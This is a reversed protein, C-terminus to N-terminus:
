RLLTVYGKLVVNDFKGFDLTVDYTVKYIYVGPSAPTNNVTGDWGETIDYNKFINQGWRNFILMEYNLIGGAPGRPVFHDNIGDGNPTFANPMYIKSPLILISDVNYCCNSDVVTVQYMGTDSAMFYRGSPTSESNWFYYDYDQGADLTFSAGPYLYITDPGLNIVPLPFITVPESGPFQGGNYSETLGVQYTGPANFVHTPTPLTSTNNGGSAPDNFNWQQSTVNSTNTIQFSTTDKFCHHLYTFLPVDLYSQMFNPLGATAFRGGLEQGDEVYNCAAGPRDPNEIVCLHYSGSQIDEFQTIYIKGDTGLQMSGFISDRSVAIRQYSSYPDSQTLDFQYISSLLSSTDPTIPPTTSLYLKSADPSFEIGYAYNFVSPSIKPNSVKGTETDFNYIEVMNMGYIALAIKSGDPSAKMYGVINNNQLLGEERTGTKSQVATANVGNHDVIFAYFVDADTGDYGHSIVWIDKGNKHKVATIKEATEDVLPINILAVSGNGGSLQMNVISYRLGKTQIPFGPPYVKDVTFIYYNSSIEPNQVIVASQTCGYDGYLQTGGPMVQFNRNWVQRGDTFFLFQGNEDSIVATSKGLTLVNNNTLPTISGNNFDLGAKNVFYWINAQRPPKYECDSSFSQAKITM